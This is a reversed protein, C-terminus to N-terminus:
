GRPRCRRSVRRRSRSGWRRPRPRPRARSGPGVDAGLQAGAALTVNAYRSVWGAQVGPGTTAAQAPLGTIVVNGATTGDLASLAISYLALTVPGIALAWGWRTAYTQAGATTTGALTPTWPVPMSGIQSWPLAPVDPNQAQLAAAAPSPAGDVAFALAQATAQTAGAVAAQTQGPSPMLELIVDNLGGAGGLAAFLYQLLQLAPITLYVQGDSRTEGWPLNLFPPFAEGTTIAPVSPGAGAM